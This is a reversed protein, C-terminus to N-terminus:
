SASHSPCPVPPQKSDDPCVALKDGSAAPPESPRRPELNSLHWGLVTISMPQVITNKM